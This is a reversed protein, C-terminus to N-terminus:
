MVNPKAKHQNVKKPNHHIKMKTKQYFQGELKELGMLNYFVKPVWILILSKM